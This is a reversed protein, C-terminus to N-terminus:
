LHENLGAGLGKLGFSFELGKDLIIKQRKLVERYSDTSIVWDVDSGNLLHPIEGENLM